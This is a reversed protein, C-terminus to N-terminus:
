TIRLGRDIDDVMTNYTGNPGLGTKIFVSDVMPTSQGANAASATTDPNPTVEQANQNDTYIQINNTKMTSMDNILWDEGPFYTSIKTIASTLLNTINGIQNRLNVFGGWTGDGNLASDLVVYVSCKTLNLNTKMAPIFSFSILCVVLVGLSFILSFVM